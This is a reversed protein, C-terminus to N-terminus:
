FDNLVKLKLLENGRILYAEDEELPKRNNRQQMLPIDVLKIESSDAFVLLQRKDKLQKLPEPATFSIPANELDTYLILLKCGRAKAQIEKYLALLAKDTGMLAVADRSQILLVYPPQSAIWGVGQEQIRGAREELQMKLDELLEQLEGTQNSYLETQFNNLQGIFAQIEGDRKKLEAIQNEYEQILQKQRSIAADYAEVGM